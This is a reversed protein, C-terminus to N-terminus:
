LEGFTDVAATRRKQLLAKFQIAEDNSLRIELSDLEEGQPLMVISLGDSGEPRDDIADIIKGCLDFDKKLDQATEFNDITM